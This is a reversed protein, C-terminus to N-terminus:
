GCLSIVNDAKPKPTAMAGLAAMADSHDDAFLHTYVPLTTTVNAHGIFRAIELPKIGAAPCWARRVGLVHKAAGRLLSTAFQSAAARIIAPPKGGLPLAIPHCLASDSAVPNRVLPLSILLSRLTKVM